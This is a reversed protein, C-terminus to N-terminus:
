LPVQDDSLISEFSKQEVERRQNLEERHLDPDNASFFCNTVLFDRLTRRFSERENSLRILETVYRGIDNRDRLPFLDQIGDTIAGAELVPNAINLLDALTQVQEDFASKHRTDTLIEFVQHMFTMYYQNLFASYEPRMSMKQFLMQTIKLGYECVEHILHASGWNICQVLILFDEPTASCLIEAYKEVMVLMFKYFPERFGVHDEFNNKIMEVTQHFVTVFIGDLVAGIRDEMKRCLVELLTLVEPVRAGPHSTGYEDMVTQLIPMLLQDAVIHVDRTKAFYSSLLRLVSSKVDLLVRVEQHRHAMAGFEVVADALAQSYLTYCKMMQEFIIQLQSGYSNGCNEAVVANCKLILCIQCAVDFDRPNLSRMYGNWSENCSNMLMGIQSVREADKVNAQIIISLGDFMMVLLPPPLEAVIEDLKDLFRLILSQGTLFSRKCSEAVLKFSSVAM